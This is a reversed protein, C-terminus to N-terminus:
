DDLDTRTMGFFGAFPSMAGPLTMGTGTAGALLFYRVTGRKVMAALQAPTLIRDSGTFGGLAMVPKGTTLIFLAASLSSPTAVLYTASGQHKELYRLLGADGQNGPGAGGGGM